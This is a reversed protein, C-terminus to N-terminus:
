PFRSGDSDLNVGIRFSAGDGGGNMAARVVDIAADGVIVEGAVETEVEVFAHHVAFGFRVTRELFHDLFGGAIRVIGSIALGSGAPIRTHSTIALWNKIFNGGDAWPPDSTM